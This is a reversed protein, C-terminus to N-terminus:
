PTKALPPKTADLTAYKVMGCMVVILAAGDLLMVPVKLTSEPFLVWVEKTNSLCVVCLKRAITAVDEIVLLTPCNCASAM